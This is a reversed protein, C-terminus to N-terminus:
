LNYLQIVSQLLKNPTNHIAQEIITERYIMKIKLASFYHYMLKIKEKKSFYTPIKNWFIPIRDYM